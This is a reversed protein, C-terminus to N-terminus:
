KGNPHLEEFEPGPLPKKDSEYNVMNKLLNYFGLGNANNKVHEPKGFFLELVLPSLLAHLKRHPSKCPGLVRPFSNYEKQVM